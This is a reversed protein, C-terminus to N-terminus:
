PDGGKHPPERPLAIFSTLIHFVKVEIVSVKEDNYVCDAVEKIFKANVSEDVQGLWNPHWVQITKGGSESTEYFAGNELPQIAGLVEPRQNRNLTTDIGCLNCFM